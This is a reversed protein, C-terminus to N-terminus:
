NEWRASMPMLSTGLTILTKLFTLLLHKGSYNTVLKGSFFLFSFFFFFFIFFSQDFSKPQIYSISPCRTVQNSAASTMHDRWNQRIHNYVRPIVNSEGPYVPLPEPGGSAAPVTFITLPYILIATIATAVMIYVCHPLLIIQFPLFYKLFRFM